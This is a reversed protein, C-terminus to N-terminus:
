EYGRQRGWAELAIAHALLARGERRLRNINYTIDADTMHELLVYESEDQGESHASPYYHDAENMQSRGESKPISLAQRLSITPTM